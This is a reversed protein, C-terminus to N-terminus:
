TVMYDVITKDSIVTIVTILSSQSLRIQDSRIHYSRMKYNNGEHVMKRSRSGTMVRSRHRASRPHAETAAAIGERTKTAGASVQWVTSPTIKPSDQRKFIM